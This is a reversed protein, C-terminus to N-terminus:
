CSYMSYMSYMELMHAAQGMELIVSLIWAMPLGVTPEPEVQRLGVSGRLNSMDRLGPGPGAAEMEMPIRIRHMFSPGRLFDSSVSVLLTSKTDKQIKKTDKHEHPKSM